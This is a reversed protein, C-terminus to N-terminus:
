KGYSKGCHITDLVKEETGEIQQKCAGKEALRRGSLFMKM